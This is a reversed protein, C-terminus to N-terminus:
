RLHHPETGPEGTYPVAEGLAEDRTISERLDYPHWGPAHSPFYPAEGDIKFFEMAEHREVDLIQAFIWRTWSSANYAAAPVPMLHLFGVTKSPDWSDPVEAGIELTTGVCGQGRDVDRLNFQWTKYSLRRVLDELIARSEAPGQQVIM